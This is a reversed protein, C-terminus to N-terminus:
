RFGRLAELAEPTKSAKRRNNRTAAVGVIPGHGSVAPGDRTRSDLTATRRNEFREDGPSHGEPYSPSISAEVQAM